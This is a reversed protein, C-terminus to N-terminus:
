ILHDFGSEIKSLSMFTMGGGNWGCLRGIFDDCMRRNTPIKIKLQEGVKAPM